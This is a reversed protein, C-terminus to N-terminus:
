KKVVKCFQDNNLGETGKLEKTVSGKLEKLETKVCMVLLCVMFVTTQRSNNIPYYM